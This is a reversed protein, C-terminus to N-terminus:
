GVFGELHLGDITERFKMRAITSTSLKGFPHIEETGAQTLRTFYKGHHFLAGSTVHAPACSSAKVIGAFLWGQYVCIGDQL